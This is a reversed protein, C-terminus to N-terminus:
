ATQTSRTDVNDVLRHGEADVEHLGERRKRVYDFIRFVSGWGETILSSMLIHLSQFLSLM